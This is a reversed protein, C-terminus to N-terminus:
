DDEDGDAEWTSRRFADGCSGIVRGDMTEGTLVVSEGCVPCLRPEVKLGENEDEFTVHIYARDLDMYVSFLDKLCKRFSEREERGFDELLGWDLIAQDGPIGAARDGGHEIYVRM